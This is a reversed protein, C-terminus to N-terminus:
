STEIIENYPIYTKNQQRLYSGALRVINTCMNTHRTGNTSKLLKKNNAKFFNILM